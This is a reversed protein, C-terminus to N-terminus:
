RSPKFRPNRRNRDNSSRWGPKDGRERKFQRTLPHEVKPPESPRMERRERQVEPSVMSLNIRGQDDVEFVTVKVKQGISVIDGPNKVFGAAMKSVHDM